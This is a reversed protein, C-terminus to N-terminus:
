GVLWLERRKGESGLRCELGVRLDGQEERQREPRDALALRLTHECLLFLACLLPSSPACLVLIAVSLRLLFELWLALGEGPLDRVRIHLLPPLCPPQLEGTPPLPPVALGDLVPAPTASLLLLLALPHINAHVCATICM